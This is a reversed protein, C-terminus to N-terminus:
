LLDNNTEAGFFIFWKLIKWEIVKLDMKINGEVGYALNDACCATFAWM